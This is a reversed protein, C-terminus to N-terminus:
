SVLYDADAITYQIGNTTILHSDLNSHDIFSLCFLLFFFVSAHKRSNLEIHNGNFKWLINPEPIGVSECFLSVDKKWSM